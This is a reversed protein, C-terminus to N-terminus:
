RNYWGDRRHYYGDYQDPQNLDEYFKHQRSLDLTSPPLIPKHFTSFDWVTNTQSNVSSKWNSSTSVAVARDPLLQRLLGEVAFQTASDTSTSAIPQLLSPLRPLSSPWTALQHNLAIEELAKIAWKQITPSVQQLGDAVLPAADLWNTYYGREVLAHYAPERLSVDADKRISELEARLVPNAGFSFNSLIELVRTPNRCIWLRLLTTFVRAPLNSELWDLLKRTRSNRTGLFAALKNYSVEPRERIYYIAVPINPSYLGFPKDLEMIWYSLRHNHLVPDIENRKSARQILDIICILALICCLIALCRKRSFPM